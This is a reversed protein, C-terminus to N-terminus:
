DGTARDISRGAKEIPGKPPDITDRVKEGFTRKHPECATLGLCCVSISLVAAITLRMLCEGTINGTLVDETLTGPLCYNWGHFPQRLIEPRVGASTKKDSFVDPNKRDASM